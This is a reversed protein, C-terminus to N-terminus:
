LGARKQLAPDLTLKAAAYKPNLAGRLKAAAAEPLFGSCGMGYQFRGLSSDAFLHPAVLLYYHFGNSSNSGGGGLASHLTVNYDPDDFAEYLAATVVHLADGLAAVEEPPADLFDAGCRKPVVWVTSGQTAVAVYAVMCANEYVVRSAAADSSLVSQLADCQACCRGDHSTKYALAASRLRLMEPPIFQLGVVQWHAHQLSGGARAGHNTFYVIHRVSSSSTMSSPNAAAAAAAGTGADKGGDGTRAMARGRSQWLGVLAGGFAPDQLALCENHGRGAVIVEMRGAARVRVDAAVGTPLMQGTGLTHLVPFLNQFVRAQWAGGGSSGNSNSEGVVPVTSCGPPVTELCPACKSENGVCFACSTDVEPREHVRPRTRAPQLLDRPKGPGPRPGIYLVWEDSVPNHRM